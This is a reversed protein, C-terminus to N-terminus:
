TFCSWKWYCEELFSTSSCITMMSRVCLEVRGISLNRKFFYIWCILINQELRIMYKVSVILFSNVRAQTHGPWKLAILFINLFIYLESFRLLQYKRILVYFNNNNQWFRNKVCNLGPRWREGDACLRLLPPLRWEVIMSYVILWSCLSQIATMDGTTRLHLCPSNVFAFHGALMSAGGGRRVGGKGKVSAESLQVCKCEVLHGTSLVM